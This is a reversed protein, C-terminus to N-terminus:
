PCGAWARALDQQVHLNGRLAARRFHDAGAAGSGRPSTPNARLLHGGLLRNMEMSNMPFSKDSRRVDVRFSGKHGEAMKLAWEGIEELDRGVTVVPSLSVIGFVRRLRPLM